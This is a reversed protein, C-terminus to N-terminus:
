RKGEMARKKGTVYPEYKLEFGKGDSAADGHYEIRLENSYLLKNFPKKGCLTGLKPSNSNGGGYLVVYNKSCDSGLDITRTTINIQQETPLKIIWACDATKGYKNPYNPSRIYGEGDTVVGGCPHTQYNITFNM